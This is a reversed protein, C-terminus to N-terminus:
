GNSYNLPNFQEEAVLPQPKACNQLYAFFYIKKTKV